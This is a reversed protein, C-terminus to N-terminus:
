KGLNQLKSFRTKKSNMINNRPGQSHKALLLLNLKICKGMAIISLKPGYMVHSLFDMFQFSSNDNIDYYSTPLVSLIHDSIFGTFVGCFLYVYTTKIPFCKPLVSLTGVILSIVICWENVNFSSDYRIISM